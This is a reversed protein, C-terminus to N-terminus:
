FKALLAKHKKILSFNVGHRASLVNQRTEGQKLDELLAINIESKFGIKAAENSEQESTENTNVQKNTNSEQQIFLSDAVSNINTKAQNKSLANRFDNAVNNLDNSVGNISRATAPKIKLLGSEISVRFMYYFTFFLSAFNLIEVISSLIIMVFAAQLTQAAKANSKKETKTAFAKLAEKEEHLLRAKENEAAKIMDVGAVTLVYTKNKWDILKKYTPATEIEKIKKSQEARLKAYHNKLSDTKFDAAREINNVQAQGQHKVLYDAGKVSLFISAAVCLLAAAAQGYALYKRLIYPKLAASISERKALELVVLVAASLVGAVIYSLVESIADLALAARISEFTFFGAFSVSLFATCYSLVKSAKFTKRASQYFPKDEFTDVFNQLEQAKISQDYFANFKNKENIEM